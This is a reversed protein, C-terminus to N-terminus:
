VRCLWSVFAEALLLNLAQQKNNINNFNCQFTQLWRVMLGVCPGEGSNRIFVMILQFVLQVVDASSSVLELEQPLIALIRWDHDLIRGLPLFTIPVAILHPHKFLM